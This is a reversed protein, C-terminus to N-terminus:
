LTVSCEICHKVGNVVSQCCTVADDECSKTSEFGTRHFLSLNAGNATGLSALSHFDGRVLTHAEGWTRVQCTGDAAFLLRDSQHDGLACKLKMFLWGRRHSNM